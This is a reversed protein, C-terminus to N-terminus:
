YARLGNPLVTWAWENVLIFDIPIKDSNLQFKAYAILYCSLEAQKDFDANILKVPVNPNTFPIGIFSINKDDLSTIDVSKLEFNVASIYFAHEYWIGEKYGSDDRNCGESIFLFISVIISVTIHKYSPM